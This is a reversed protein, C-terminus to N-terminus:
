VVFITLVWMTWQIYWVTDAGGQETLFKLCLTPKEFGGVVGVLLVIVIWLFGIGVFLRAVNELSM